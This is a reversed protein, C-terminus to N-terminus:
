NEPQYTWEALTLEIDRLQEKMSRLQEENLLGRKEIGVQNGGEDTLSIYLTVVTFPRLDNAEISVFCDPTLLFEAYSVLELDEWDQMTGEGRKCQSRVM